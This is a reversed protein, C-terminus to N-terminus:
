PSAFRPNWRIVQRGDRQAVVSRLNDYVCEPPVAGLWDFVRVRGELFSELTMDFIIVCRGRSASVRAGFAGNSIM